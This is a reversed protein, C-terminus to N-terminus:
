VLTGRDVLGSVIRCQRAYPMLLLKEANEPSLRKLLIDIRTDYFAAAAWGLSERWREEDLVGRVEIRDDGGCSRCMGYGTDHPYPVKGHSVNEDANDRIGAGCCSCNIWECQPM